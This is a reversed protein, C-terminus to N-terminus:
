IKTVEFDFPIEIATIIKLVEFVSVSIMWANWVQLSLYFMNIVHILAKLFLLLIPM